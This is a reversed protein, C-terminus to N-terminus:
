CKWCSLHDKLGREHCSVPGYFNDHLLEQPCRPLERNVGRFSGAAAVTASAARLVRREEDSVRHCGAPDRASNRNCADLLRDCVHLTGISHEFRTHVAGPYVLAASGLQKIGRLRQVEATDVLRLEERTLEIDGHVPDRLTSLGLLSAGRRGAAM